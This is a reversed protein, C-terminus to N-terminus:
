DALKEVPEEILVPEIDGYPKSTELAGEDPLYEEYPEAYQLTDLTRVLVTALEAKTLSADPLFHDNSRGKMIGANFVFSLAGNEESSLAMTDEYIPFMLTTMVSLKKFAFSKNVAIAIEMRTVNKDADLSFDAEGDFDFIKDLYKVLEGGTVAKNPNFEGTLDGWIGKAELLAINEYAWHNKIDTFKTEVAIPTVEGDASASIPIIDESSVPKDNITGAFAMTTGGILIAGALIVKFLKSKM